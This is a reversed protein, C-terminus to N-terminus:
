RKEEIGQNVSNNFEHRDRAAVIGSLSSTLAEQLLSTERVDEFGEISSSFESRVSDYLSTLNSFKRKKEIENNSDNELFSSLVTSRLGAHNPDNDIVVQFLGSVDEKVQSTALIL